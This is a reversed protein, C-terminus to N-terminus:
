KPLHLEMSCCNDSLRQPWPYCIFEQNQKNYVVYTFPSSEQQNKCLDLCSSFDAINEFTEGLSGFNECETQAYLGCVKNTDRAYCPKDGCGESTCDDKNKAM